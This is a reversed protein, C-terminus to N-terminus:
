SVAELAHVRALEVAARLAAVFGQYVVHCDSGIGILQPRLCELKMVDLERYAPEAKDYIFGAVAVRHARALSAFQLHRELTEPRGKSLAVGLYAVDVGGCGLIEAVLAPSVHEEIFAWLVVDRNFCRKTSSYDDAGYGGLPTFPNPRRHGEPHFLLRKRLDMVSAAGDAGTWAVGDVGLETARLLKDPDASRYVVPMRLARAHRVMPALADLSDFAGSLGDLLLFDFGARQSLTIIEPVPLTLTTWFCARKAAVVQRLHSM